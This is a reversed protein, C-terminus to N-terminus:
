VQYVVNIVIRKDTKFPTNGAHWTNSPFLVAKNKLPSKRLVIEEGEYFYTYGDSDNVYYLLSYNNEEKSDTHIPGHTDINTSTVKKINPVTLNAKIRILKKIPLHTTNIKNLIPKVIDFYHSSKGESFLLHFFISSDIINNKSFDADDACSSELYYWPFDNTTMEQEIHNAQEAEIFSDFKWLQM